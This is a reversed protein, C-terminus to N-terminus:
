FAVQTEYPWSSLRWDDLKCLPVDSVRSVAVIWYPGPMNGACKALYSRLQAENEWLPHNRGVYEPLEIGTLGLAEREDSPLSEFQALDFVSPWVLWDASLPKIIDSRVLSLRTNSSTHRWTERADCGLMTGDVSEIKEMIRLVMSLAQLSQEEPRVAEKNVPRDHRLLSTVVPWQCRVVAWSCGVVLM